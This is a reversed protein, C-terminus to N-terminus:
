FAAYYAYDGGRRLSVLYASSTVALFLSALVFGAVAAMPGFSVAFFGSLAYNMGSAVLLLVGMAMVRRFAMAFVANSLFLSFLVIGVLAYRFVAVSEAMGGAFGVIGDAFTGALLTFVTAALLVRLSLGRHFRAVKRSFAETDPVATDKSSAELYESLRYILPFKVATIPVLVLLAIDVGIHYTSNYNVAFPGAGGFWSVLRDGFLFVFYMTGYLLYPLGDYALVWFRPPNVKTPKEPLSYFPPDEPKREEEKEQFVFWYLFLLSTGLLAGLGLLQSAVVATTRDVGAMTLLPYATFMAALAALSSVLLAVFKKMAYVPTVALRYAGIMGLYTAGLAAMSPPLGIVAVALVAFGAMAALVVLGGWLLSRRMVFRALPDNGQLHYYILKWAAFQQVGGTCVLGLVVGLGVATSVAVPMDKAAWLSQGGLFLAILMIVWGLNYFMGALYLRFGSERKRPAERLPEEWAYPTAVRRVGEALDFLNRFGHERADEDKYGLAELIVATELRDKLRSEVDCVTRALADLNLGRTATAM